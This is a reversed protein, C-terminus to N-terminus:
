VKIFELEGVSKRGCNPCYSRSINTRRFRNALKCHCMRCVIVYKPPAISVTNKALRQPNAGVQRCAQKWKYNHGAAHGAIFHDIEHLITDRIEDNTNNCVYYSSLKLKDPKGLKFCALGVTRKMRNSCEIKVNEFGHKDLLERAMKKADSIKYNLIM